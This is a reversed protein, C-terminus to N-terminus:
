QGDGPLISPVAFCDDETRQSAALVRERDLSEEVRDPRLPQVKSSVHTMPEIGSTDVEALLEMHELIGSLDSQLSEVESEELRLRALHSLSRIEEKTVRSM